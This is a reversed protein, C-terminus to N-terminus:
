SPNIGKLKAVYEAFDARVCEILRISYVSYCHECLWGTRSSYWQFRLIAMNECAACHGYFYERLMLGKNWFNIEMIATFLCVSRTRGTRRSCFRQFPPNMDIVCGAYGLSPRWAERASPRTKQKITVAAAGTTGRRNKHIHDGVSCTYVRECVPCYGFLFLGDALDTYFLSPSASPVVHNGRQRVFADCLLLFLLMINPESQWLYAIFRSLAASVDGGSYYSRLIFCFRARLVALRPSQQFVVDALLRSVVFDRHSWAPVGYRAFPTYLLSDAVAETLFSCVAQTGRVCDSMARRLQVISNILDIYSGQTAGCVSTAVQVAQVFINNNFAPKTSMSV